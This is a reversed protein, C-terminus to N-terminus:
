YHKAVTFSFFFAFGILRISRTQFVRVFNTEVVPHTASYFLYWVQLTCDKTFHENNCTCTFVCVPLREDVRKIISLTCSAFVPFLLLNGMILFRKHYLYSFLSRWQVSTCANLSLKVSKQERKVLPGHFAGYSHM